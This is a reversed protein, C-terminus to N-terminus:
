RLRCLGHGVVGFDSHHTSDRKTGPMPQDSVFAFTDVQVPVIVHQFNVHGPVLGIGQPPDYVKRHDIAQELFPDISMPIM